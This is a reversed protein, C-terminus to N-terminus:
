YKKNLFDHFKILSKEKFKNLPETTIAQLNKSFLKIMENRAKEYGNKLGEQYGKRNEDSIKRKKSDQSGTTKNRLQYGKEACVRIFYQEMENLKSEEVYKWNIKWGTPNNESYFGHNRISNDIHLFGRLHSALRDILKKAQGVYAFSFGNEYRTFIYIGSKNKLTPELNQIYIKDNKIKKWWEM